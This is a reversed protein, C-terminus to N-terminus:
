QVLWKVIKQTNGLNIHCFYVGPSLSNNEVKYRKEGALQIQKPLLTMVRKGNAAFVDISVEARETLTYTLTTYARFPNPYSRVFRLSNAVGIPNQASTVVAISDKEIRFNDVLWGWGELGPDTSMRLRLFISDGPEYFESLNLEYPRLLDPSPIADFFFADVWEDYLRADFGDLLTWTEGSDTTAEVAAFDYFDSSNINESDGPEILAIHDFKVLTSSDGIRIPKQFVALYERSARYPHPTQLANGAFGDTAGIIFRDRAFDSEGQEFDSVYREVADSDVPFGKVTQSRDFAVETSFSRIDIQIDVITDQILELPTRIERLEPTPNPNLTFRVTDSLALSGIQVQTSDYAARLDIFGNVVGGFATENLALLPSVLAPRPEYGQLEPLSVSWVGRGHTAVVVQDNVIKMEYISVSPLGNDALAWSGGGDLSEVLGIETGVWITNTDYPMVILTFVGVDPFGNSSVTNTGFGSIDEWSQGMDTTKLIKPGKAFSFLAYATSSDFPHTGLGTVPGMTTDAYAATPSFSVGYDSSVVIREESTHESATWVVNPAAVSIEIPNGVGRFQWEEPMEIIEWTSGFDTSRLVGLDSIGFVLEPDQQSGALRTIFPARDRGIRPLRVFEWTEGGNNSRYVINFQSSELIKNGDRYNWINEFGDGSPADAWTSSADPDVGSFWTGNDQTGGIYRSEGNKKDVAYFQSTNYGDVTTGTQIFRQGSNESFAIGGDNANLLYFQETTSDQPLLILNHHDVHVGKTGVSPFDIAFELYGDTIPFYTGVFGEFSTIALFLTLTSEEFDNVDVTPDFGPFISYIGADLFSQLSESGEPTYPLSHVFIPEGAELGELDWVGNENDDAISVMLQQNNDTDWVEFPVEVLDVFTEFLNDVLVQRHAMQSFEPGFRIEISRYDLPESPQIGTFLSALIPTPVVGNEFVDDSLALSENTNEVIITSDIASSDSLTIQLIPGAGGVIVTNDRYPHVAITNDWWGQNGMWHAESPLFAREWNVGADESVYLASESVDETIEIEAAFYLLNPNSPSITLEMRGIKSTDRLTLDTQVDFVLDWSEGEDTSKLIGARRESAYLTAFDGPTAIIQQVAGGSINQLSGLVTHVERWSNGGDESKLIYSVPTSFSTDAPNRPNGRVAVLLTNEDQPDVLIRLVSSFRDDNQTSIIPNWTEGADESKWMGDGILNLSSFGEGTGVYVVDPNAPSNALTSTSLNPLEESVLTWARGGNTTRWVGGGASGALWTMQTPDQQMVILGRTRGGVNGPGREIWDLAEARRRLPTSSRSAKRLEKFRYAPGYEPKAQGARTKIYNLYEQHFRPNERKFKKSERQKQIPVLTLPAPEQARGIYMLAGLLVSLLLPTKLKTSKIM